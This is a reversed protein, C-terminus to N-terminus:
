EGGKLRAFLAILLRLGCGSKGTCERGFLHARLKKSDGAKYRQVLSALDSSKPDVLVVPPSAGLGRQDRIEIECSGGTRKGARQCHIKVRAVYQMDKSAKGMKGIVIEEGDRNGKEDKERFTAVWHFPAEKLMRVVPAMAADVMAYAIKKGPNKIAYADRPYECLDTASDIFLASDPDSEVLKAALLVSEPSAHAVKKSDSWERGLRVHEVGTAATFDDLEDELRETDYVYLRM